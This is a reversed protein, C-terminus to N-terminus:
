CKKFVYYKVAFFGYVGNICLSIIQSLLEATSVSILTINLEVYVVMLGYAISPILMLSILSILCFNLFQQSARQNYSNFSFIKNLYFNVFMALIAALFVSIVFSFYIQFLIRSIISCTASVIGVLIFKIFTGSLLDSKIKVYLGQIIPTM